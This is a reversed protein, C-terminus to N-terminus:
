QGSRMQQERKMFTKLEKVQDKLSTVDDTIEMILMETDVGDKSTEKTTSQNGSNRFGGGVLTSTRALKTTQETANTLKMQRIIHTVEM